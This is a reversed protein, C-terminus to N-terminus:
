NSCCDSRTFWNEFEDYRIRSQRSSCIALHNSVRSNHSCRTYANLEAFQQGEYASVGVTNGTRWLEIFNDASSDWGPVDTENYTKINPQFTQYPTPPTITLDPQEFSGNTMIVQCANNPVQAIAKEGQCIWLILGLLFIQINLDIFRRNFLYVSVKSRTNVQLLAPLFNM